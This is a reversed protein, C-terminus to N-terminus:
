RARAVVMDHTPRAAGSLIDLVDVWKSWHERIYDPHHFTTQYYSAFPLDPGYNEFYVIGQGPLAIRVPDDAAAGVLDLHTPGHVTQLMVGGPSLVRALEGLWEDQYNEPLHTLISWGIILDFSDDAFPLPPLASNTQIRAAPLRASLWETAEDDVDTATLRAPPVIATLPLSIRGCGCGFDYVRAFEDLSRGVGALAAAIDAVAMEGSSRFWEVDDTGAVRIRLKPPPLENGEDRPSPTAAAPARGRAYARSIEALKRLPATLAWSKSSYVVALQRGLEDREGTLRAVQAARAEPEQDQQPREDRAQEGVTAVPL